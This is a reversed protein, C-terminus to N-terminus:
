LLKFAAKKVDRSSRGIMVEFDGPEQQHYEIAKTMHIEDIDLSISNVRETAFLKDFKNNCRSDNSMTVVTFKTNYSMWKIYKFLSLLADDHHPEIILMRNM